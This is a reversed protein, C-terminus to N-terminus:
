PRRLEPDGMWCHILTKLPLVGVIPPPPGHVIKELPFIPVVLGAMVWAFSGVPSIPFALGWPDSDTFFSPSGLYLFWMVGM